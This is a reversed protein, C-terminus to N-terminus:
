RRRRGPGVQWPRRASTECDPARHAAMSSQARERCTPKELTIEVPTPESTSRPSIRSKGPGRGPVSLMM